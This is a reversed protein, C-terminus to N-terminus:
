KAAVSLQISFTKEPKQKEWPRAKRFELSVDGESVAKFRFVQVERLGVMGPPKKQNQPQAVESGLFELNAPLPNALHWSSGSSMHVDLSVKVTDGARLKVPRTMAEDVSVEMEDVSVEPPNSCALLMLAPLAFRLHRLAKKMDVGTANPVAAVDRAVRFEILFLSNPVHYGFQFVRALTYRPKGPNHSLLTLIGVKSTPSCARFGSSAQKM